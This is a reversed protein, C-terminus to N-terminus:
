GAVREEMRTGMVAKRAGLCEIMMAARDRLCRTATKESITGMRESSTVGPESQAANHKPPVFSVVTSVAADPVFEDSMTQSSLWYWVVPLPM